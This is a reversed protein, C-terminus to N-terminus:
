EFETLQKLPSGSRASVFCVCCGPASDEGACVFSLALIKHTRLIVAPFCSWSGTRTLTGEKETNDRHDAGLSVFCGPLAPCGFPGWLCHQGHGAGLCQSEFCVPPRTQSHLQADQSHFEADFAGNIFACAVGVCYRTDGLHSCM